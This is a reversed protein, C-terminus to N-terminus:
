NDGADSLGQKMHSETATFQMKGDLRGVFTEAQCRYGAISASLDHECHM